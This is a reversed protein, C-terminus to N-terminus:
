IMLGDRSKVIRKGAPLSTNKLGYEKFRLKVVM